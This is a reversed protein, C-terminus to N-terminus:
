KLNEAFHTLRNGCNSFSMRFLTKKIKMAEIISKVFAESLAETRM